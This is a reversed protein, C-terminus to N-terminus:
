ESQMGPFSPTARGTTNMGSNGSGSTGPELNMMGRGIPQLSIVEEEIIEGDPDDM